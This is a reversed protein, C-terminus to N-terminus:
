IIKLLTQITNIYEEPKEGKVKLYKEYFYSKKLESLKLDTMPPIYIQHELKEFPYPKPPELGLIRWWVEWCHSWFIRALKVWATKKGTKRDREKFKKYLEAYNGRSKALTQALIWCRKQYEPKFNLPVNSIASLRKTPLKPILPNGCRPCKSNESWKPKPNAYHCNECYAWPYIGLYAWLKTVYPFWKSELIYIIFGANYIGIGKVYQLYYLYLPHNKIIEYIGVLITERGNELSKIIEKLKPAPKVLVYEIENDGCKPCERVITQIKKKRITLTDVKRAEKILKEVVNVDIIKVDKLIENVKGEDLKAIKILHNLKCKTAVFLSARNILAVRVKDLDDLARLYQELHSLQETTLFKPLIPITSNM